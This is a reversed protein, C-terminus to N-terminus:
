RHDAETRQLQAERANAEAQSRQRLAEAAEREARDRSVVAAKRQDEAVARLRVQEVANYRSQISLAGLSVVIAVAAALPVWHRRAFKGALYAFSTGRALVPLGKEFRRLDDALQDASRYRRAPDKELAKLIINDLDAPIRSRRRSPREVPDELVRQVVATISLNELEYPRQGTTLEYFIVGLSYVDTATTIAGGRLQEPSAYQPTMMAGPLQTLLPSSGPSGLLKAIGFDLLKPLGDSSVLINAPKLDRHVILNQHAYSVGECVKIFLAIRQNLTSGAQECYATLPLGEVYDLVLYPQGNPLTGGDLLRAIYPHDLQALIQRERLFLGRATIGAFGARLVKVAVRKEYQLDARTALYVAGMGGSGLLHEIRYAGLLTGPGIAAEELVRGAENPVVESFWTGGTEDEALLREVDARLQPDSGCAANLFGDRQERPLDLAQVFITEVASLREPTM